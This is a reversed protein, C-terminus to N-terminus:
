ARRGASRSWCRARSCRRASSPPSAQAKVQDILGAVESPTPDEFDSVQIAGIVTWDYTKAFYAYADHYTLLEREPVTAFSTRMAADFDDILASFM